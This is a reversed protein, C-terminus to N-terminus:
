GVEGELFYEGRVRAMLEERLAAKEAEDLDGNEDVDYELFIAVRREFIAERRAARAAAREVFDLMGDENEDFAELIAERRALRRERLDAQAEAWEAEDLDGSEDADYTALLYERRNECRAELDARMRALESADLLGSDDADYIWHLRAIRWHRAYRHRRLPRPGFEERLVRLEALELRGSGDGDYEEIVRQRFAGVSCERAFGDGADLEIDVDEEALDEVDADLGGLELLEGDGDALAASFAADEILGEAAEDATPACALLLPFAAAGWSMRAIRRMM